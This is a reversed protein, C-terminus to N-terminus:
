ISQYQYPGRIEVQFGLFIDVDLHFCKFGFIEEFISRVM